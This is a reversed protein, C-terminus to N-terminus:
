LGASGLPARRSAYRNPEVLERSPRPKRGVVTIDDEPHDFAPSDGSYQQWRQRYRERTLLHLDVTGSGDRSEDLGAPFSVGGNETLVYRDHLREGGPRRVVRRITVRQDKPFRAPLEESCAAEFHERAPDQDRGGSTIVHVSPHRGSARGPPRCEDLCASLVRVFLRNDPAFYPDVLVITTALRLMDRLTDAMAEARRPITSGREVAWLTLDGEVEDPVLIRPSGLGFQDRFYRAEMRQSWTAALEPEVAYERLM